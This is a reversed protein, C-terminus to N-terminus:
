HMILNIFAKLVKASFKFLYLIMLYKESNICLFCCCCLMLGLNKHGTICRWCILWPWGCVYNLGFAIVEACDLSLFLSNVMLVSTGQECDLLNTWINHYLIQKYQIFHKYNLHIYSAEEGLSTKGFAKITILLMVLMPSWYHLWLFYGISMLIYFM